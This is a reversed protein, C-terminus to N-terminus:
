TQDLESGRRALWAAQLPLMSAAHPSETRWQEALRDADVFEHDIGSGDWDHIFARAAPGWTPGQFTAKTTREIVADPLLDGALHRLAAARDAFGAPRGDRSLARLFTAEGYPLVLAGPEAEALRRYTDVLVEHYRRGLYWRWREGYRAPEAAAEHVRLRRFDAAARGTLWRLNSQWRADVLAARGRVPLAAHLAWLLHRSSARGRLALQVRGWRWGGLVGDGFLGVLLTGEGVVQLMEAIGSANPPWLLGHRLLQKRASPGLVDFDGPRRVWDDVGLHRLVREQWVGEETEPAGPFKLTLPIPPPLGNRRAAHLAVALLTSSDRGGSFAVLTPGPRELAALAISELVQRATEGPADPSPRASRRPGAVLGAAVELRSLQSSLPHLRPQEM